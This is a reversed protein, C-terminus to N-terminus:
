SGKQYTFDLTGMMRGGFGKGSVTIDGNGVAFNVDGRDLRTIKWDRLTFSFDAGNLNDEASVDPLDAGLLYKEVLNFGIEM